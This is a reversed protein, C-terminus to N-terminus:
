TTQLADWVTADIADWDGAVTPPAALQIVGAADDYNITIDSSQLAQAVSDVIYEQLNPITSTQAPNSVPM